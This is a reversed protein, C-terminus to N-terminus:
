EEGGAAGRRRGLGGGGEEEGGGAGRGRAGRAAGPPGAPGGMSPPGGGPPGAMGPAPGGPAGGAGPMGGLGPMGGAGPAGAMAAGAAAAGPPQPVTIPTTLTGNIQLVIEQKEPATTASGAGGAGGGMMGPPGGMTGEGMPPGGPAGTPPGGPGGMPGGPGMPGPGVAMPGPGGMGPGGMPPPGGGMPPVTSAPTINPGAAPGTPRVSPGGMGPGPGTKGRATPWEGPEREKTSPIGRGASLAQIGSFTMYPCRLLNLLFRAYETTGHVVVTFSVSSPPSISFSRMQARAYIYRKIKHFADWYPGGCEDAQRVFNVKDAIPKLDNQKQTLESTLRDYEDAQPKVETVQRETASIQRQLSVAAQLWYLGVLGLVVLSVVLLTRNLRARAFTKPLLDIRLV